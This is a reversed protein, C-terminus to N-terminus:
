YAANNPTCAPVTLAFAISRVMTLEAAETANACMSALLNPCIAPLLAELETLRLASSSVKLGIVQSVRRERPM